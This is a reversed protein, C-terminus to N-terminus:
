RHHFDKILYDTWCCPSKVWIDDQYTCNIHSSEVLSSCATPNRAPRYFTCLSLTGVCSSFMHLHASPIVTM